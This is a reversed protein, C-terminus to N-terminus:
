SHVLTSIYLEVIKTLKVTMEREAVDEVKVIKVFKVRMVRKAVMEVEGSANLTILKNRIGVNEVDLRNVLEAIFFIGKTKIFVVRLPVKNIIPLIIPFYIVSVRRTYRLYIHTVYLHGLLMM